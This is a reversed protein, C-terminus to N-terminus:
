KHYVGTTSRFIFLKLTYTFLVFELSVGGKIAEYM